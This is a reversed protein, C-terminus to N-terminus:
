FPSDDDDQPTDEQKPKSKVAKAKAEPVKAKAPVKVTGGDDDDAEDDFESGSEYDSEQKVYEILNTVLVNKLYLSSGGSTRDFKDVSIAGISGNAVLKSHTIDVLTAGSKTKVKEFVKPKYLDPLPKDTKGLMTSKRLTLVWVNKGADEPPEVKYKDKFEATKVKKISLLTDLEKGYAELEDVYDEDTLVVSAKYEDPKPPAPPKSYGKVPENVQVYVLMGQIKEFKNSM